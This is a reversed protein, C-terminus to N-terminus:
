LSAWTGVQFLTLTVISAQTIDLQLREGPKSRLKV